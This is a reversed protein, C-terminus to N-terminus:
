DEATEDAWPKSTQTTSRRNRKRKDYTSQQAIRMKTALQTIRATQRQEQKMLDYMMKDEDPTRGVKSALANIGSGLVHARCVHVCYQELLDLTEPKFWDPPCSTIIRNWVAKQDDPMGSPPEAVKSSRIPEDTSTALALASRRGRQIM